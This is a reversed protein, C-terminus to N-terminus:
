ALSITNAPIVFLPMRTLTPSFSKRMTPKQLLDKHPPLPIINTGPRLPARLTYRNRASCYNNNTKVLLRFKNHAYMAACTILFCSDFSHGGGRKMAPSIFCRQASLTPAGLLHLICQQLTLHLWQELLCLCNRILPKRSKSQPCVQLM